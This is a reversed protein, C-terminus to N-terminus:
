AASRRMRAPEFAGISPASPHRLVGRIDRSRPVAAGARILPSGPLLGTGVAVRTPLTVDGTSVYEPGNAANGNVANRSGSFGGAFNTGYIESAGQLVNNTAVYNANSANRFFHRLNGDMENNRANVTYTNGGATFVGAWFGTIVNSELTAPGNVLRVGHFETDALSGLGSIRNRRAVFNTAGNTASSNVVGYRTVGMDCDEIVVRDMTATAGGNNVVGVGYSNVGTRLSLWGVSGIGRAWIRTARMDAMTQNPQLLTFECAALGAGRVTVDEWRNRLLSQATMNYLQSTVASDFIHWCRIRRGIGDNAGSAVEVGNGLYTGADRFGGALWIEIDEVLWNTRNLIAVAHRSAQEFRVNRLVFGDRATNADLLVPRVSVSMVKNAIVGDPPRVYLVFGSIDFSFAGPELATAGLSGAWAKWLMPEGNMAVNGCLNSGASWSFVGGGVPTWNTVINAGSVVPLPGDGWGEITLNAFDLATFSERFVSGALLRVTDGAAVGPWSAGLNNFPAALSGNGGPPAGSQAYFIAM